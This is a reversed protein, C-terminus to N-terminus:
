RLNGCIPHSNGTSPAARPGQGACALFLFRRFDAYDASLDRDIGARDTVTLAPKTRLNVCIEASQIATVPRRRPARGNARALLSFFDASIQSIPPYIESKM